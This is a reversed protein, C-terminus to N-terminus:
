FVHFDLFSRRSLVSCGASRRIAPDSPPGLPFLLPSSLLLSGLLSQIPLSIPDTRVAAAIFALFSRVWLGLSVRLEQKHGTEMELPGGVALVEVRHNNTDKASMKSESTSTRHASSMTTTPPSSPSSICRRETWPSDRFRLVLAPNSRSDCLRPLNALNSRGQRRRLCWGATSLSSASSSRAQFSPVFPSLRRRSLPAIPRRRSAGPSFVDVVIPATGSDLRHSSLTQEHQLHDRPSEGL